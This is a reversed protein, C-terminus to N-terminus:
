RPTGEQKEIMKLNKRLVESGPNNELLELTLKKSLAINGREFYRRALYSKAEMSEGAIDAYIADALDVKGELLAAKALLEKGKLSQDLGANLQIENRARAFDGKEIYALTRLWAAQQSLNGKEDKVESLLKIAPEVQGDRILLEAITYNLENSERQRKAFELAKAISRNTGYAKTLNVLVSDPAAEKASENFMDLAAETWGTELLAAVYAMHSLLMDKDEQRLTIYPDEESKLAYSNVRSIFGPNAKNQLSERLKIELKSLPIDKGKLAPSGYLQYTLISKLALELSPNWSQNSFPNNKLLELAQQKEDKRLYSLLQLWFASQESLSLNEQKSLREFQSEDWFEWPRLNALYQVYQNSAPDSAEVKKVEKLPKVTKSLFLAKSLLASDNTRDLNAELVDLARDFRGQRIYFDSLQEVTKPDLPKQYWASFYESFAQDGKGAMELIRGRYSLVETNQPDLEKAKTLYEFATKPNEAIQMLALRFLRPVDQKGEFQRSKLLEIAEMRKGEFLYADADLVLWGAENQESGKWSNRLKRYSEDRASDIFAKALLLSAEENNKFLGPAFQSLIVLQSEDKKEIAHDLLLSLWKQGFETNPNLYKKNKETYLLFKGEDGKKFLREATAYAEAEDEASKSPAEKQPPTEPEEKTKLEEHSDIGPEPEAEKDSEDSEGGITEGQSSEEENSTALSTEPSNWRKRPADALAIDENKEELLAGRPWSEPQVDKIDFTELQNPLYRAAVFALAASVVLMLVFAIKRM